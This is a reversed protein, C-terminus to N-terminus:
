NLNQTFFGKSANQDIGKVKQSRSALGIGEICPNEDRWNNWVWVGQKLIALHEPNAM